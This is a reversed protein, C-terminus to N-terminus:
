QSPAAELVMGVPRTRFNRVCLLSNVCSRTGKRFTQHGSEDQLVKTCAHNLVCSSEQTKRIKSVRTISATLTFIYGQQHLPPTITDWVQGWEFYGSFDLRTAVITATSDCPLIHNHTSIEAEIMNSFQLPPCRCPSTRASFAERLLTRMLMAARLLIAADAQSTPAACSVFVEVARM